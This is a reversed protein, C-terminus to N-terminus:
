GPASTTPRPRSTFATYGIEAVEADSIWRQQDEDYIANPYKITTWGDPDIGAIAKRVAQDQRATISFRAGHRGAAAIM